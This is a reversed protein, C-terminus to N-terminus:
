TVTVTQLGLALGGGPSGTYLISTELKLWESSIKPPVIFKFLDRSWLWAGKPTIIKNKQYSKTFGAQKCFKVARDEAMGPIHIPDELNLITVHRLWAEKM